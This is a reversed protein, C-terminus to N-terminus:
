VKLWVSTCGNKEDETAQSYDFAQVFGHSAWYEKTPGSGLDAAILGVIKVDDPLESEFKQYLEKGLGRGRQHSPIVFTELICGYLKGNQSLDQTTYYPKDSDEGKYSPLAHKNKM